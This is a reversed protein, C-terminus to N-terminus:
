KAKHKNKHEMSSEIIELVDDYQSSKIDDISKTKYGSLTLQNFVTEYSIGAASIKRNIVNVQADSLGDSGKNPASKEDHAKYEMPKVSLSEGEDSCIVDDPVGKAAVYHIGFANMLLAKAATSVARQHTMQVTENQNYRVDIEDNLLRVAGDEHSILVQVVHKGNDKKEASVEFNFGYGVAKDNIYAKVENYNPYLYREPKADLAVPGVRKREVVNKTVLPGANRKFELMSHRYSLEQEREDDKAQARDKAEVSEANFAAEIRQLEIDNKASEFVAEQYDSERKILIKLVDADIDERKLYEEVANAMVNASSSKDKNTSKAKPM